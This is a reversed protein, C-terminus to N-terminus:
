AVKLRKCSRDTMKSIEEISRDSRDNIDEFLKITSDAQEIAISLMESAKSLKGNGIKPKAM